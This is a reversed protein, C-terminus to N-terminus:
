GRRRSRGALSGMAALGIVFLSLASPGPVAVSPLATLVRVYDGPTNAFTDWLIQHPGNITVSDRPELGRMNPNLYHVGTHALFDSALLLDTSTIIALIDADFDVTGIMHQESAPDFFVYHSAVRTGAPLTGGDVALPALLLVNQAEDFGYLNPSQFTDNGVSDPPGHPNALPPTLKIFTGGAAFASGGTVTGGIITAGAPMVVLLSLCVLATLTFLPKKM